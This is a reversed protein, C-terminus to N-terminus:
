LDLVLLEVRQNIYQILGVGMAERLGNILCAVM